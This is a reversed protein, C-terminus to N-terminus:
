RSRFEGSNIKGFRIIKCIIKKAVIWWAKARIKLPYHQTAFYPKMELAFLDNHLLCRYYEALFEHFNSHYYDVDFVNAFKDVAGLVQLNLLTRMCKPCDNTGNKHGENIRWCVNLYKQALHYDVIDRVKEVRSHAHGDMRVSMSNLALHPFLFYEWRAPDSVLTPFRINFNMIDCDSAIYYTRWLKQLAFICFLNGFTTMGDWQLGSICGNDFNTDGIILEVRAESAFCQARNRMGIWAMDRKDLTDQDQIGTMVHGHWICAHTIDSHTAFVHLSDVGCSIGTGICDGGVPHEIESAIPCTIKVAYGRLSGRRDMGNVKYFAPLYQGTLQEYLRATMPTETEIDHGFRMAFYLVALVFADSREYCLYSGYKDDVEFWLPYVTGDVILDALLRAKGNSFKVNPQKITIM